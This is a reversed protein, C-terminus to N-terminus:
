VKRIVVTIHLAIELVEFYFHRLITVSIYLYETVLKDNYTNFGDKFLLRSLCIPAFWLVPRAMQRLFEWAEFLLIADIRQKSEHSSSKLNLAGNCFPMKQIDSRSSLTTKNNQRHTHKISINTISNINIQKDMLQWAITRLCGEYKHPCYNPCNRSTNMFLSCYSSTEAKEKYFFIMVM